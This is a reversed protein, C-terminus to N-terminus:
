SAAKTVGCYVLWVMAALVILAVQQVRLMFYIPKLTGGIKSIENGEGSFTKIGIDKQKMYMQIKPDEVDALIIERILNIKKRYRVNAERESELIRRTAEAMVALLVYVGSLAIVSFLTQAPTEVWTKATFALVVFFAANFYNFFIGRRSDINFLQQWSTEFEAILLDKTMDNM